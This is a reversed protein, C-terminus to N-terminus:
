NSITLDTPHNEDIWWPFTFNTESWPIVLAVTSVIWKFGYAVVPVWYIYGLFKLSGNWTESTDFVQDYKMFHYRVFRVWGSKRFFRLIFGSKNRFHLLLLLHHKWDLKDTNLPLCSLKSSVGPSYSSQWIFSVSWLVMEQFIFM